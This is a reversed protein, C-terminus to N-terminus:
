RGMLCRAPVDKAASFRYLDCPGFFWAWLGVALVLTFAALGAVTRMM